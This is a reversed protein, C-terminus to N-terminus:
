FQPNLHVLLLLFFNPSWVNLTTSNRLQNLVYQKLIKLGNKPIQVHVMIANWKSFEVVKRKLGSELFSSMKHPEDFSNKQEKFNPM